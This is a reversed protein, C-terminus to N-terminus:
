STIKRKDRLSSYTLISLICVSDSHHIAIVKIIIITTQVLNRSYIATINNGSTEVEVMVILQQITFFMQCPGHLPTLRIYVLHIAVMMSMNQGTISGNPGVM